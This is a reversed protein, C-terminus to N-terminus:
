NVNTVSLFECNRRRTINSCHETTPHLRLEIHLMENGKTLNIKCLMWAYAILLNNWDIIIWHEHTSWVKNNNELYYTCKILILMFLYWLILFIPSPAKPLATRTRCLSECLCHTTLSILMTFTIHGRWKRLGYAFRWIFYLTDQTHSTLCSHAKVCTPGYM